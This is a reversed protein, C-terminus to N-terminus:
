CKYYCGFQGCDDCRESIVEIDQREKLLIDMETETVVYRVNGVYLVVHNLPAKLYELSDM